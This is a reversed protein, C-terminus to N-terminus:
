IKYRSELSLSLTFFSIRSQNEKFLNPRSTSSKSLINFNQKSLTKRANLVSLIGGTGKEINLNFEKDIKQKNNNFACSNLFGNLM